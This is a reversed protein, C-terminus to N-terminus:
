VAGTAKSRALCSSKKALVTNANKFEQYANPDHIVTDGAQGSMLDSGAYKIVGQDAALTNGDSVVLDGGVTLFDSGEPPSVQSGVGAKGVNFISAPTKNLTFDGGTVVRGEMEAADESITIGGGAFVNIASDRHGQDQNTGPPPFPSPCQTGQCHSPGFDDGVDAFATGGMISMLGVATATGVIKAISRHPKLLSM